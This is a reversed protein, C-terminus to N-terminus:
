GRRQLDQVEELLSLLGSDVQTRSKGSPSTSRKKTVKQGSTTKVRREKGYQLDTVVLLDACLLQDVNVAQLTQVDM